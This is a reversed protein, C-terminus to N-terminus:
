TLTWKGDEFELVVAQGKSLEVSKGTMEDIALPIVDGHSCLYVTEKSSVIKEVLESIRKAFQSESESPLQEDLLKVIKMPSLALDTLPKLTEQCRLKPSSWFQSAKPLTGKRYATLIDDVQSRGKDSLGNDEDPINKHRHGHRIFVIQKTIKPTAQM